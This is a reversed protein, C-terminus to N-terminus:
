GHSQIYSIVDDVFKIAAALVAGEYQSAAYDKAKNLRVIDNGVNGVLKKFDAPAEVGTDAQAEVTTDAQAEVAKAKTRAKALKEADAREGAKAQELAEGEPEKANTLMEAAGEGLGQEVLAAIDAERKRQRALKLSEESAMTYANIQQAMKMDDHQGLHVDASSGLYTFCKTAGDTIAKKFAEDDFISRGKATTYILKEGAIQPSTKYVQGDIKYWGQITVYANVDGNPATINQQALIEWGWGQGNPGFVETLRKFVFMPAISKGRYTGNNFDKIFEQPTFCLEDWISRNQEILKIKEDAKKEALKQAPTKTTNNTM